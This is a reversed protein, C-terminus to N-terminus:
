AWLTPERNDKALKEKTRRNWMMIVEDLFFKYKDVSMECCISHFGGLWVITQEAISTNFFWAKGDEGRLDPFKSPDCHAHCFEDSDAYKNEFHFVNVALGVNDFDPDNKVHKKVTCNNNFIIHNPM